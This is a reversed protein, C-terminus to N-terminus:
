YHYETGEIMIDVRHSQPLYSSLPFLLTGEPASTGVELLVSEM